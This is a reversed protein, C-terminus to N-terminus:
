RRFNPNLLYSEGNSHIFDRIFEELEEHFMQDDIATEIFIDVDEKSLGHNSLRYEGNELLFKLFTKCLKDKDINPNM